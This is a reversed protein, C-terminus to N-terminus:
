RSASSPPRAPNLGAAPEDLCLLKPETCMARAIELRRQDGHLLNAANWDARATLGIRGLWDAGTRGGSGRRPSLQRLGVGLVTYGSARMLANHQAVVLNELVSMQGFLRINQFTRAVRRPRYSARGDARAAASVMPSLYASRGDAQLLRHPLQVGHDQRRREPRHDRHDARQATFSSDDIAVLGGFRMTLHEVDLLPAPANVATGARRRRDRSQRAPTHDARSPRVPRAAAVMIMVMAAGFLLMRFQEFERGFEPLLILVMAAFVVGIQSGMGGLVVIALITASEIFTFSEPSIFGQCTAFFSGGFGGFMAGLAFATLKTNTPNIGLARCAIEDERLAEWARGIPLKRIRLVFANTILALILILFYSVRSPPLWFVGSWSSTFPRKARPRRAPSSWASSPRARSTPCGPRAATVQYWNLLIIRIIEGFGLTVIALYDGRLRLVPFGLLIGFSAALACAAASRGSASISGAPSCHTPIRAQLMSRSM